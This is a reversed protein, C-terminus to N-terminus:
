SRLDETTEPTSPADLMRDIKRRARYLQISGEFVNYLLLIMAPTSLGFFIGRIVDKPLDPWHFLRTVLVVYM